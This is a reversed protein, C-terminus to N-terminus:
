NDITTPNKKVINVMDYLSIGFIDCVRQRYMAIEIYGTASVTLSPQTCDSYCTHMDNIKLDRYKLEFPKDKGIERLWEDYSIDLYANGYNDIHWVHAKITDDIILYLQLRREVLPVDRGIESLPTGSLLRVAQECFIDYAAFTQYDSPWTLNIEVAREYDNGFVIFPLGNNTCIYYQSKYLVVVFGQGSQEESLIDIIHVTGPPFNTCANKIVFSAGKLDFPPLAHCIDVVRVDPIASYIRGKVMGAFFGREGWDTTLTVIPGPM